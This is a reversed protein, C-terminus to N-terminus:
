GRYSLFFGEHPFTHFNNLEVAEGSCDPTQYGPVSNFGGSWGILWIADAPVPHCGGDPTAQRGVIIQTYAQYFVLGTDPIKLREVAAAPSAPITVALTAILAAALGAAIRRTSARM